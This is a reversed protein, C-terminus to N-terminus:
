DRRELRAVGLREGCRGATGIEGSAIDDERLFMAAFPKPRPLRVMASAHVSYRMPYGTGGSMRRGLLPSQLIAMLLTPTGGGGGCPVSRQLSAILVRRARRLASSRALGVQVGGTVNIPPRVVELRLVVSLHVVSVGEDALPVGLVPLPAEAKPANGPAGELV